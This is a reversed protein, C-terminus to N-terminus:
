WKATPFSRAVIQMEALLHGLHESHNGLYGGRVMYCNDDPLQLTAKGLVEAVLARWQAQLTQRDPVFERDKLHKELPDADFLEGTFRWLDDIAKQARQHSERTGDGLRLMWQSSHRLHYSIEKFAKAAIAALPPYASSQLAEYLAYGHADFFFQRAMTFAFDRNPQEVLLVNRFDVAERFYALDDESRGRSEARGALRLLATAQGLCDLSINALAIDEELIPAHGCWQSLRHGLILREDALRLLFQFLSRRTDADLDAAM